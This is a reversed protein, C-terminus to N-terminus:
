GLSDFGLDSADVGARGMGAFVSQLSSGGTSASKKSADVSDRSVDPESAVEAKTDIETDAETDVVPAAVAGQMQVDGRTRVSRLEDALRQTERAYVEDPHVDGHELVFLRILAVIADRMGRPPVNHFFRRLVDDPDDTYELVIQKRYEKREGQAM